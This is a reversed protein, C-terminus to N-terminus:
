GWEPNRQSRPGRNGSARCERGVNTPQRAARRRGRVAGSARETTGNTSCLRRRGAFASRFTVYVCGRGRPDSQAGGRARPSRGHVGFRHLRGGRSPKPRNGAPWQRYRSGEAFRAREPLHAESSRTTWAKSRFPVSMGKAASRDPGVAVSGSTRVSSTTGRLGSVRLLLHRARLDETSVIQIRSRRPAHPTREGARSPLCAFGGRPGNAGTTVNLSAGRFRPEVASSVSV